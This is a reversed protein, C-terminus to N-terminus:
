LSIDEVPGIQGVALHFYTVVAGWTASLLRIKLYYNVSNSYFRSDTVDSFLKQNRPNGAVLNSFEFKM